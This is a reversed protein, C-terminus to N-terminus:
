VLPGIGKVRAAAALRLVLPVFTDFDVPKAIHLDFGADMAAQVDSKSVYGTVAIALTRRGNELARLKRVLSYGDEDPMGVDTVVIDFHAGAAQLHQYARAASDSLTVEAGALRLTEAVITRADVEDDVVLISLGGLTPAPAGGAQTDGPSSGNGGNAGAWRQASPLRVTFTAGCGLGDSSAGVTGGHLSVIERVLTLGLGLGGTNRTSSSDGQKFRDFIHPLLEPAMGQGTDSVTIQNYGASGSVAVRVRGGSPTFKIANSLLNAVVQQLRDPDARTQGLEASLETVVEIEKKAAAPRVLDVAAIVLPALRLPRPEIRLKGTGIRGLDLLDSVIKLQSKASQEIRPAIGAVEPDDRRKLLLIRNWGLIANLPSRLEHSIVSLFEDKSRNAAEAEERLRREHDLAVAQERREEQIAVNEVSANRSTILLRDPAGSDNRLARGQLAVSQISGDPWQARVTLALDAGSEIAAAVASRLRERDERHIREQLQEWTFEADPPWGFEAKFPANASPTLTQTELRCFGIRAAALVRELEDCRRALGECESSLATAPPHTHSGPHEDHISAMDNARSAPPSLPRLPTRVRWQLKEPADTCRSAAADDLRAGPL